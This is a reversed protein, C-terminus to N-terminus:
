LLRSLIAALKLALSVAITIGAVSLVTKRMAYFGSSPEADKLALSIITLIALLRISEVVLNELTM